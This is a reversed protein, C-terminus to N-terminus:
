NGHLRPSNVHASLQKSIEDVRGKLMSFWFMNLVGTLAAITGTVAACILLVDDLTM